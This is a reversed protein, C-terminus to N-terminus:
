YEDRRGPIVSVVSFRTLGKIGAVPLDRSCFVGCEVKDSENSQYNRTLVQDESSWDVSPVRRKRYALSPAAHSVRAAPSPDSSVQAMCGSM